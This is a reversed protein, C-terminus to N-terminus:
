KAEGTQGYQSEVQYCKLCIPYTKKSGLDWKFEILKNPFSYNGCLKCYYPKIFWEMTKIRISM